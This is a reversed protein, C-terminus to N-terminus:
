ARLCCGDKFSMLGVRDFWRFAESLAPAKYDGGNMSFVSRGHGYNIVNDTRNEDQYLARLETMGDHTPPQMPVLGNDLKIFTQNNRHVAGTASCRVVYGMRTPLMRADLASPKIEHTYLRNTSIPM